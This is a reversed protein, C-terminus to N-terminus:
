LAKWFHVAEEEYRRGKGEEKWEEEEEKGGGRLSGRRIIIAPHFIETLLIVRLEAGFLSYLKSFLTSQM